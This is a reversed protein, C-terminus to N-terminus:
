NYLCCLPRTAYLDALVFLTLVSLVPKCGGWGEEGQKGALFKTSLESPVLRALVCLGSLLIDGCWVVPDSNGDRCHAHGFGHFNVLLFQIKM